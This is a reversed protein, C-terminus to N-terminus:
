CSKEEYSLHVCQIRYTQRYDNIEFYCYVTLNLLYKEERERKKTEEKKKSATIYFNSRTM